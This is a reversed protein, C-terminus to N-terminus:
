IVKLLMSAARDFRVIRKEMEKLRKIRKGAVTSEKGGGGEAIERYKAELVPLGEKLPKVQLEYKTIIAKRLARRLDDEARVFVRRSGPKSSRVICGLNELMRVCNSISALSYGTRKALEDMGIEDECVFLTFIVKSLVPQAGYASGIRLFLEEVESDVKSVRDAKSENRTKTARNNGVARGGGM